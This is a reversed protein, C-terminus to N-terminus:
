KYTVLCHIEIGILENVNFAYLHRDLHVLLTHHEINRSLYLLGIELPFKQM